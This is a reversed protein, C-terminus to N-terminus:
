VTELALEATKKNTQIDINLSVTGHCGCGWNDNTKYMTTKKFAEEEYYDCCNLVGQYKDPCVARFIQCAQHINEAVVKLWGGKFAQGESGFTFYFNKNSM